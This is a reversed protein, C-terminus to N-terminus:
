RAVTDAHCQRHDLHEIGFVSKRDIEVRFVVIGPPVTVPLIMVIDAVTHGHVQIDITFGAEIRPPSELVPIVFHETAVSSVVVRVDHLRLEAFVINEADLLARRVVGRRSVEILLTTRREVVVNLLVNGSRM